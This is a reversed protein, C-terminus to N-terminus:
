SRPLAQAAAISAYEVLDRDANTLTDEDKSGVYLAGFWVDDRFLGALIFAREYNLINHVGYSMTNTVLAVSSEPRHWILAFPSDGPRVPLTQLYLAYPSLATTARLRDGESAYYVVSQAAPIAQSLEECIITAM